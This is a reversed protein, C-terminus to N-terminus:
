DNKSQGTKTAEEPDQVQAQSKDNLSPILSSSENETAPQTSLTDVGAIQEAGASTKEAEKEGLGGIEGANWFRFWRSYMM